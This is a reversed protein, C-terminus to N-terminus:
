DSFAEVFGGFDLAGPLKGRTVPTRKEIEALLGYFRFKDTANRRFQHEAVIEHGQFNVFGSEGNGDGVGTMELQDVFEGQMQTLAELDPDSGRRLDIVKQFMGFLRLSNEIACGFAEGELNSLLVFVSFFINGHLLEGALDARARDNPKEIGDDERSEFPTSAIDVHFGADVLHDHPIANVAHQLAGHMRKRLFDVGRKERSDFHHTIKSIASRRTGCSPRKRTRYWSRKISKRTEM